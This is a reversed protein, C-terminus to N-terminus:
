SANFSSFSPKCIRDSQTKGIQETSGEIDLIDDRIQFALGIADVYQELSQVTANNAAPPCCAASLVCARLLRGTKLRYMNELEDAELRTGEAGLDISQGGTM